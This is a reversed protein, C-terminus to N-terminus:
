QLEYGISAAFEEFLYGAEQAALLMHGNCILRDCGPSNDMIYEAYASSYQMDEMQSLTALKM